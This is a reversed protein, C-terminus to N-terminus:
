YHLCKEFSVRCAQNAAFSLCVVLRAPHSLTYHLLKPAKCSQSAWKIPSIFSSVLVCFTQPLLMLSLSSPAPIRKSQLLCGSSFPSVLGQNPLDPPFAPRSRGLGFCPSTISDPSFSPLVIYSVNFSLLSLSWSGPTATLSSQLGSMAIFNFAM